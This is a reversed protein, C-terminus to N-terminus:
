PGPPGNTYKGGSVVEMSMIDGRASALGATVDDADAVNVKLRAPYTDTPYNPTGSDGQYRSSSSGDPYTPGALDGGTIFRPDLYWYDVKGNANLQPLVYTTNNDYPGYGREKLRVGAIRFFGDHHPDPEMLPEFVPPKCGRGSIVFAKDDAPAWNPQFGSGSNTIEYGGVEPIFFLGKAVADEDQVSPSLEITITPPLRFGTLFQALMGHRDTSMEADVLPVEEFDVFALDDLKTPVLSAEAMAKDKDGGTHTGVFSLGPIERYGSGGDILKLTGVADISPDLIAEVVTNLTAEDIMYQLEKASLVRDFLYVEDLKGEFIESQDPNSCFHRGLTISDINQVDSFFGRADVSGTSALIKKKEGDVYIDTGNDDVIVAVHHWEDRFVEETYVDVVEAGDNKVSFGIQGTDRITLRLASSNDDKDSASLITMDAHAGNGGRKGNTKYWGTITGRPMSNMEGISPFLDVHTSGNLDLAHSVKSNGAGSVVSREDGGVLVGHSNSGSSDLVYLGALERIEAVSLGRTYIELEDIQGKFVQDPNPTDGIKVSGASPINETHGDQILDGNVYFCWTGSTGNQETFALALHVWSNSTFINPAIPNFLASKAGADNGTVDVYLSFGGSIGGDGMSVFDHDSSNNETVRAWFSVTLGKSPDVAVAPTIGTATANFQLAGWHKGSDYYNHSGILAGGDWVTLNSDGISDAFTSSNNDLEDFKWRHALNPKIYSTWNPTRPLMTPRTTSINDFSWNARPNAPYTAVAFTTNEDYGLGTAGISVSGLEDNKVGKKGGLTGTANVDSGRGVVAISPTGSYGDGRHTIGITGVGDIRATINADILTSNIDTRDLTANYEPNLSLSGNAERVFQPIWPHYTHWTKNRDLVVTLYDGPDKYGRGGHVLKVESLKTPYLISEIQPMKLVVSDPTKGALYATNNIHWDPGLIFRTQETQNFLGNILVKPSTSYGAGLQELHLRLGMKAKIEAPHRDTNQNFSLAVDELSEDLVFRHWQGRHFVLDPSEKGDIHFRKVRNDAESSEWTIQHMDPLAKQAVVRLGRVPKGEKGMVRGEIASFNLKEPRGVQLTRT